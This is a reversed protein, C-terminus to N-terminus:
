NIHNEVDISGKKENAGDGGKGTKTVSVASVVVVLMVMVMMTTESRELSVSITAIRPFIDVNAASPLGVIDL